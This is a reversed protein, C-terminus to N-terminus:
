IMEPALLGKGVTTATGKGAIIAGLFVMIEFLGPILSKRIVNAGFAASFSPGTGSGGMTMALFMATIIPILPYILLPSLM